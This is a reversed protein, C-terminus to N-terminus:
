QGRVVIVKCTKMFNMTKAAAHILVADNNSVVIQTSKKGSASLGCVVLPEAGIRADSHASALTPRYSIMGTRVLNDYEVYNLGFVERGEEDVISALLAPQSDLRSADVILGTYHKGGYPRLGTSPIVLEVGKPVTRCEPWPLLSLPSRPIDDLRLRGQGTEQPVFIAAIGASLPLEIEVEVSMDTMSRTDVITFRQALEVLDQRAAADNAVVSGVTGKESLLLGRMAQLLTASAGNTATELAAIRQSRDHGDTPAVSVGAARVIHNTWDISVRDGIKQEVIQGNVPASALFLVVALISFSVM